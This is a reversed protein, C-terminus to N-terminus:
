YDRMKAMWPPWVPPPLNTKSNRAWKMKWLEKLGVKRASLNMFVGNIAGNHRDMAFMGLYWVAVGERVPHPEENNKPWWGFGGSDLM